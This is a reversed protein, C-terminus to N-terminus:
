YSAMASFETPAQPKAPAACLAKKAKIEFLSCFYGRQTLLVVLVWQAQKKIGTFFRKEM